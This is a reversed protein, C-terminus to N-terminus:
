GEPVMVVAEGDVVVVGKANTCYTRLSVIPKDERVGMVEVSATIEDGLYVPAKFKVQQSLYISGKGPLKMGLLGSFLSAVLMGHVIRQGFMSEAAVDQDLHIPNRDMSLDAYQCVDEDSFTKTISVSDGVQIKNRM